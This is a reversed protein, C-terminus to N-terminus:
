KLGSVALNTESLIRTVESDEMEHFDRYFSAVAFPGHTQAVVAFIEDFYPEVLSLSHVPATPVALIMARPNSQRVMRAAALVSFGSALGDDVFYVESGRVEPPEEHGAYARARRRVEALVQETVAEIEAASLQIRRLLDENLVRSGDIAVAGFGAEPSDPIPLKRVLVPRLPAHLARALPAGVPIGGRPLALVIAGERPQAKLFAALASGATDRDPFLPIPSRVRKEIHIVAMSGSSRCLACRDSM